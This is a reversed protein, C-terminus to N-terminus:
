ECIRTNRVREALDIHFHNRHALNAEPGLVTNFLRCASVHAARLFDSKGGAAPSDPKPGGLRSPPALGLGPLPQQGLGPFQVVIGPVAVPADPRLIRVGATMPPAAAPAGSAPEDAAAAAAAARESEANHGQAAIDRATPGWDAVVMAAQGGATVFAGLDLANAKGHESLRSDRRGYANRCSYSSMTEIRIVPAGLHRRALPQVDKQVWRHLAAIMDCTVTPPPSFSVQPNSGLSVLKMPAPAGCDPGERIPVEPVAVVDLGKLLAACRAQALEIEQATWAQVAPPRAQSGADAPAKRSVVAPWQPTAPGTRTAAAGAAAPAADRPAATQASAAPVALVCLAAATALRKGSM